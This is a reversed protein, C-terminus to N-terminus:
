YDTGIFNFRSSATLAILQWLYFNSMDKLWLCKRRAIEELSTQLNRKPKWNDKTKDTLTRVQKFATAGPWFIFKIDIQLNPKLMM